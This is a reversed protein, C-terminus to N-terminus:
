HHVVAFDARPTVISVSATALPRRLDWTLLYDLAVVAFWLCRARNCSV